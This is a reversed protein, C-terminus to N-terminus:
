SFSVGACINEQSNQLVGIKYFIQSPNSRNLSQLSVIEEIDFDIRSFHGLASNKQDTNERMQVSYPSKSRLDGYEAWIHSFVYWFFSWIPCKECLSYLWYLKSLPVTVLLFFCNDLPTRVRSSCCQSFSVQDYIMGPFKGFVRM